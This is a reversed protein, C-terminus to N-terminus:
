RTTAHVYEPESLIDIYANPFQETYKDYAVDAADENAYKNLVTLTNGGDDFRIVFYTMTTDKNIPNPISRVTTICEGPLIPGNM